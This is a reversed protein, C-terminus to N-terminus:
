LQDHRDKGARMDIEDLVYGAQERTGAERSPRNYGGKRVVARRTGGYSYLAWTLWGGVVSIMGAFTILVWLVKTRGANTWARSPQRAADVFGCFGLFLSIGCYIFLGM